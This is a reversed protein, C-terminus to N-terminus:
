NCPLLRLYLLLILLLAFDLASFCLQACDCGRGWGKFGTQTAVARPTELWLVERTGPSSSPEAPLTVSLTCGGVGALQPFLGKEVSLSPSM